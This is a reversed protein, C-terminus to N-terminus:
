RKPASPPTPASSRRCSRTARRTCRPSAPTPASVAAALAAAAPSPAPARSPRLLLTRLRDVGTPENALSVTLREAIATSVAAVARRALPSSSPPSSSPPSSSPPSSSSHAARFGQVFSWLAEGLAADSVFSALEGRGSLPDARYMELWAHQDADSMGSRLKNATRPPAPQTPAAATSATTTPAALLALLAESEKLLQARLAEADEDADPPPPSTTRTTSQPRASGLVASRARAFAEGGTRAASAATALWSGSLTQPLPLESM